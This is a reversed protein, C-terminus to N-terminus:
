TQFHVPWGRGEELSTWGPSQSAPIRHQLQAPTAGPRMWPPASPRGLEAPRGAERRTCIAMDAPSRRAITDRRGPSPWVSFGASPWHRVSRTACTMFACPFRRIIDVPGADLIFDSGRARGGHRATPNLGGNPWGRSWRCLRSSRSWSRPRPWWAHRHPPRIQM